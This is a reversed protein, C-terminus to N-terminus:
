KHKWYYFALGVHCFSTCPLWYFSSTAYSALIDESQITKFIDKFNLWPRHAQCKQKLLLFQRFSFRTAAKKRASSM